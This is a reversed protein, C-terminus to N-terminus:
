SVLRHLSVRGIDNKVPIIVHYTPLKRVIATDMTNLGSLGDPDAVPQDRLMKVSTTLMGAATKADDVARRHSALSISLAGAMTDLKSRNPNLLLLGAITVADLVM